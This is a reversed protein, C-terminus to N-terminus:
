CHWSRFSFSAASCSCLLWHRPWFPSLASRDRASSASWRGASWSRLASPSASSSGPWSFTRTPAFSRRRSFLVVFALIEVAALPLWLGPVFHQVLATFTLTAVYAGGLHQPRMTALREVVRRLAPRM